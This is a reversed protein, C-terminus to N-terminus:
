LDGTRLRVPFDTGWMNIIKYGIVKKDDDRVIQFRYYETDTFGFVDKLLPLLIEETGDPYVRCLNGEKVYISYKEDYYKGTYEVLDEESLAIPNIESEVIGKKWELEKRYNEDSTKDIIVQMAKLHAFDLADEEPIEIDPKVGVGEWNTKTIPNISLGIPMQILINGEIIRCDVPHAGGKTTEGIVTARKLNKLDYTFEEAASFTRKSTLIFLEVDPMRKGPLYPLTWYQETKDKPRLYNSNLHVKEGTFFYSCLLQVMEEHGGGNKRLDIIIADTNSLFNMAKSATEGAYETDAFVRLDLYGINGELIEIKRFGFNSRRNKEYDQREIDNIEDTPVLKNKAMILRAEEPNKFVFLHRDKCIKRLDDTLKSCFQNIETYSNYTGSENNEKIYEAMQEGIDPFIYNDTVLKAAKLVIRTKLTSDISSNEQCHYYSNFCFFSLIFSVIIINSKKM